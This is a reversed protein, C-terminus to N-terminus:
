VTLEPLQNEIEERRSELWPALVLKKGLDDPDEDVTFGPGDTAIEFLVGGPSQFYFSHFWHRDVIPSPNFGFNLVKERMGEQEEKDEARFAAHHVTGRGGAAYGEDSEEIILSGGIPADTSYLRENGQTDTQQFGFLEQLVLATPKHERLRLTTGWFGRISHEAPIASTKWGPLEPIQEDLVLELQLGDPDNFRIAQKGFREVSEFDIREEALHDKWFDKSQPPINLSVIVAQGVGAEGKPVNAWPFFSLDSGPSGEVNSYFFHYTDTADQNVSRKVLRMGLSNVYFEANQRANGGNVTIHHIGKHHDKM